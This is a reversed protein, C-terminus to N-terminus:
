YERFLNYILQELLIFQNYPLYYKRILVGYIM